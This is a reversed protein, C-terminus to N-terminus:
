FGSDTSSPNAPSAVSNKRILAAEVGTVIDQVTQVTMLASEPISIGYIEEIDFSLSVKDLSDIQLEELTSTLSVATVPLQKAQAILGICHQTISQRDIKEMSGGMTADENV